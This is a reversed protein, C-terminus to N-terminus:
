IKQLGRSTRVLFYAPDFKWCIALKILKGRLFAKLRNPPFSSHGGMERCVYKLWLTRQDKVEKLRIWLCRFGIGISEAWRSNEAMGGLQSSM